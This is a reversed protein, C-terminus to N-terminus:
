HGSSILDGLQDSTMFEADPWKKLVKSLLEDLMKLNAISNKEDMFGVYNIRHSSIIAPKRWRFAAEIQSLCVEVHKKSVDVAPEFICNRVLFLQGHKNKEGTFHKIYRRKGSADKPTIQSRSSQIYQIGCDNMTSELAADWIYNPAIFSKSKYGFLETFIQQAQKIIERQGEIESPHQYEFAAMYTSRKESSIEPNIAFMNKDFAMRTETSNEKLFKMWLSVNLHERGHLQPHFIRKQMGEKWLSLANAHKPYQRMTEDCREYFYASFDSARIKEFDPNAVIVNATIVPNNGNKDRHSLLVDFLANLDSESALSDYRAFFDRDVRIGSEILSDYVEKSPMRISGWDDSEIVIIKRKSSWGKLNHLNQGIVSKINKLFM